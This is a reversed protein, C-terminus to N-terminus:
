AGKEGTSNHAISKVLKVLEGIENMTDNVCGDIVKFYYIAQIKTTILSTAVSGVICAILIEM